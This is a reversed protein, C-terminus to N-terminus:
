NFIDKIIAAYEKKQKETLDERENKSYASILALIANRSYFYYIVRSDGRKGKGDNLSWRLKRLGNTGKIPDGAKPNEALYSKLDEVSGIDRLKKISKRFSALEIITIMAIGSVERLDTYNM